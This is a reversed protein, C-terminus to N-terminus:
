LLDCYGIDTTGTAFTDAHDLFLDKLETALSQSLHNEVVTTHFLLRIHEPVQSCIDDLPDPSSITTDAQVQMISNPHLNDLRQSDPADQYVSLAPLLLTRPSRPHSNASM